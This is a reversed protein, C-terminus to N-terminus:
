NTDLEKLFNVIITRSSQKYSEILQGIKQNSIKGVQYHYQGYGGQYNVLEAIERLSINTSATCNFIGKIPKKLILEIVELIMEYTICNFTSEIDLSLSPQECTLLRLINNPRMTEHLLSSPRLILPNMCRSTVISESILKFSPYGGTLNEIYLPENEDHIANDKPYVDISSIFIFQKHPLRSARELLLLNDNTIDYLQAPETRFNAKAACYIIVDQETTEPLPKDRTIPIGNLKLSLFRGLGNSAGIIYTNSDIM